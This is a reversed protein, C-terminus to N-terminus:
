FRGAEFAIDFLWSAALALCVAAAAAFRWSKWGRRLDALNVWAAAAYIMLIPMLPLHYRSHAFAACHLATVFALLLLWFAHVAVNKPPALAIGFVGLLLTACYIGLIVVAMLLVVMTSTQGWIGQSAGAVLERELQWFHFLKATSRLATQGPHAAIYGLAYKM